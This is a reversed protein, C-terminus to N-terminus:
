LTKFNARLQLLIWISAISHPSCALHSNILNLNKLMMTQLHFVKSIAIKLIKRRCAAAASLIRKLLHM